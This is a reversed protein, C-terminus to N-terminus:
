RPLGTVLASPSTRVVWSRAPLPRIPCMSASVYMPSSTPMAPPNTKEYEIAFADDQAQLTEITRKVLQQHLLNDGNVQPM